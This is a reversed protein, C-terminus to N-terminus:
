FLCYGNCQYYKKELSRNDLYRRTDLIVGDIQYNLVAIEDNPIYKERTRIRKRNMRKLFRKLYISAFSYRVVRGKVEDFIYGSYRLGFARYCNPKSRNILKKKGIMKRQYRNRKM